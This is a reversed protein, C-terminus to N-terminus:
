SKRPRGVLARRVLEAERAAQVARQRQTRALERLGAAAMREELRRALAAKDQLASVATWLAREVLQDQGM